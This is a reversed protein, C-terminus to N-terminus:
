QYQGSKRCEPCKKIVEQVVSKSCGLRAGISRISLGRRAMTPAERQVRERAKRRRAKDAISAFEVASERKLGFKLFRELLDEYLSM